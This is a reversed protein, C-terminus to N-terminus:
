SSACADTPPGLGALLLSGAFCVCLGLSLFVTM